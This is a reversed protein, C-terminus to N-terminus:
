NVKLHPRRCPPHLCSIEEEYILLLLALERLVDLTEPAQVHVHLGYEALSTLSNSVLPKSNCPIGYCISADLRMVNCCPIFLGSVIQSLHATNTTWPEQLWKQWWLYRRRISQHVLISSVLCQKSDSLIGIEQNTEIYVTKCDYLFYRILVLEV